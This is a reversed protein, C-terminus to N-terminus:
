DTHCLFVQGGRNDRDTLARADVLRSLHRPFDLRRAARGHGGPKVEASPPPM